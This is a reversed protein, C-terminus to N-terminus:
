SKVTITESLGPVGPRLCCIGRVVLRIEVGARSAVYLRNILQSDTLANLKAWITGPKGAQAFAIERDICEYLRARVGGPSIALMETGKPEIYGT